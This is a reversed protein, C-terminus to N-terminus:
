GELARTLHKSHGQQLGNVHDVIHIFRNHPHGVGADPNDDVIVYQSVEPHAFLWKSIENGRYREGGPTHWDDHFEGRWGFSRLHNTLEARSLHLRWTSSSVYLVDGAHEAVENLIEVGEPDLACRFMWQPQPRKAFAEEGARQHAAATCIVEDMDLFIIRM